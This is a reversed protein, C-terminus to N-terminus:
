KGAKLALGMIRKEVTDSMAQVVERVKGDLARRMFPRAPIYKTGFEVLPAYWADMGKKRWEKGSRTVISAVAHGQKRSRAVVRISKKLTKSKGVPVILRAEKAIVNAGARVASKAINREMNFSFKELAANIERIGEIKFSFSSM